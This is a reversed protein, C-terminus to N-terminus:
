RGRYQTYVQTSLFPSGKDFNKLIKKLASLARMHAKKAASETIGIAVAIEKFSERLYYRHYVVTYQQDPLAALATKLAGFEERTILDGLIDVEDALENGLGCCGRDAGIAVDRYHNKLVNQAIAYIYTSFKAIEPDYPNAFAKTFVDATLDEAIQGSSVRRAIYVYIRDYYEDYLREFSEHTNRYRPVLM